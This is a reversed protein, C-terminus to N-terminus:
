KRKHDWGWNEYYEWSAMTNLEKMKKDQELLSARLVDGISLLGIQRGEREIVIHRIFLGLFMEKLKLVPTDHPATRLPTSMHDSVRANNLDFDPSASIRLLDRESFIGIMRNKGKILVTGIRNEAMLHVADIVKKEGDICVMERNNAKVIDEATKM